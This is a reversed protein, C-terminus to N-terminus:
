WHKHQAIQDVESAALLFAGQAFSNSDGSQTGRVPQAPGIRGDTRIEAVLARWARECVPLYTIADIHRHNIASALAFLILASGTADSPSTKDAMRTHWLGDPGQLSVITQTMDRQMQVYGPRIPDDGPLASIIRALAAMALGDSLATKERNQDLAYLHAAPDYLLRQTKIWQRQEFAAYSPDSNVASMEAAASGMLYLRLADPFAPEGSQAAEEIDLDLRRRLAALDQEDHTDLLIAQAIAYDHTPDTTHELRWQFQDLAAEVPRAYRSDGVAHSTAVLSAALMGFDLSRDPALRLVERDAVYRMVNHIVKSNIAPALNAPQVDASTPTQALAMLGSSLFILACSRAFMSM